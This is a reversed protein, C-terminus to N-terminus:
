GIRGQQQALLSSYFYFEETGPVLERIAEARDEALAFREAFGIEENANASISAFLTVFLFLCLPTCLAFPPHKM